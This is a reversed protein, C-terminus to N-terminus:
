VVNYVYKGILFMRTYKTGNISSCQYNGEDYKSVNKIRLNYGDKEWIDLREQLSAPLSSLISKGSSYQHGYIGYWKVSDDTWPCLLTANSGSKANIDKSRDSTIAGIVM